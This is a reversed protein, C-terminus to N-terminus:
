KVRDLADKVDALTFKGRRFLEDLVVAACESWGEAALLETPTTVEEPVLAAALAQFKERHLGNRITGGARGDAIICLIGPQDVYAGVLYRGPLFTKAKTWDNRSRRDPQPNTVEEKLLYIGPMLKTPTTM